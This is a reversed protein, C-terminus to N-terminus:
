DFQVKAIQDTDFSLLRFIRGYIGSIRVDLYLFWKVQSSHFTASNDMESLYLDNLRGDKDRINKKQTRIKPFNDWFITSKSM